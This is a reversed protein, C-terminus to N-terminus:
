KTARFGEPWNQVVAIRGGTPMQVVVFREAKPGVDYVYSLTDLSLDSGVEESTFLRRPQGLKLDGTVSVAVLSDDPDVYFIENGTPSWRPHTGGSISIKTKRKGDPFSVAFIDPLYGGSETSQYLVYHEDPSIQPLMEDAPTQVLPIGSKAVPLHLYWIDRNSRNPALFDYLLIQGSHSWNLFIEEVAGLPLIKRAETSQDVPQVYISGGSDFAIRDGSPSWVPHRRDAFESTIREKTGRPDHIWVDFGGHPDAGDAAVRQGDPSISPNRIVAQPQGIAGLVKGQRDVWVLRNEKQPRTRYVLTGAASVTPAMGDSVALFPEGTPAQKSADFPLAWISFSAIGRQTSSGMQYLIHGTRSYTTWTIFEARKIVSTRQVGTQIVIESSNDQKLSVYMLKKSDPLLSPWYLWNEGKEPKVIQRPEGGQEDVEYIGGPGQGFMITGSPTWYGGGWLDYPLRCLASISDGAKSIKYLQSQTFYAIYDSRPSWFPQGAGETGELKRPALAHLDRIWLTGSDRYVVMTGDPSIAPGDWPRIQGKYSFDFELLPPLQAKPQSMSKFLWSVAIGCFFAVAIIIALRTRGIKGEPATKPTPGAEGSNAAAARLDVLLDSSHQYRAAPDKQLCKEVTWQLRLPLGPEVQDLPPPPENLIRHITSHISKGPSPMSQSRKGQFPHNGSLMEYLVVGFAFIDARQDVESEGFQEPAMYGPTGIVQGAVMGTLSFTLTPSNEGAPETRPPQILKALGFDLIKLHGSSTIFINGPKLDRHVIGAANIAALGEGIEIAMSLAKQRPLRGRQLLEQLTQGELYEEVIYDIHSGDPRTESGVDYITAVNPHNLAAATQAEREFRALSEASSAAAAPLVKVAVKRHLRTDDALYVEGMGGQGIKKLIKYHSITSELV